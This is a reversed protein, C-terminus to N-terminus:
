DTPLATKWIRARRYLMEDAFRDFALETDSLWRLCYTTEEAQRTVPRPKGNGKVPAIWITTNGWFTLDPRAKRPTGEFTVYAVQRGDPSPVALGAPSGPQAIVDRQSGDPSAVIIGSETSLALRSSDAFWPNWSPKIYDWDHNPSIIIKGLNVWSQKSRDYIWLNNDTIRGTPGCAGLVALYREDPSPVMLDTLLSDKRALVSGDSCAIGRTTWGLSWCFAHRSSFYQARETFAGRPVDVVESKSGDPTVLFAKWDRYCVLKKGDPTWAQLFADALPKSTLVTGSLDMLMVDSKLSTRGLSSMPFGRGWGTGVFAITKGDPSPIPNYASDALIVAVSLDSGVTQGQAPSVTILGAM